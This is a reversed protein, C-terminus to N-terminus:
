LLRENQVVTDYVYEGSGPIIVISNILNQLSNPNKANDNKIVEFYFKPIKNKFKSIPFDEFVIYAIGRFACVRGKGEIGEIHPDPLQEESGKYIRIDYLSKDIITNNIWIRSVDNIEGECLAIALSIKYEYKTYNYEIKQNPNNKTKNIVNRLEKLGSNWIVNGALKVKGYVIPIEKGYKVTQVNIDELRKGDTNILIENKFIKKSLISGVLKGIKFSTSNDFIYFSM